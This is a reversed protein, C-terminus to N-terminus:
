LLEPNYRLEQKQWLPGRQTSVFITIFHCATCFAEMSLLVPRHAVSHADVYLVVNQLEVAQPKQFLQQRVLRCLPIDEPSCVCVARQARLILAILFDCGGQNGPGMAGDDLGPGPLRRFLLGAPRPLM